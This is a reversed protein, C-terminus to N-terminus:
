LNLYEKLQHLAKSRMSIRNKEERTFEALTKEYGDPQFIPDWGFNAQGRPQVIKGYLEGEFFEMENGNTYGIITKAIAMKNPNNKILEYIGENGLSQMFWKILPGPLSNLSKIYLSTDECFLEFGQYYKVAEKLKAEIIKKPNLEQIESLDLHIAKINPIIALAEELKGKSGTIFYLQGAM